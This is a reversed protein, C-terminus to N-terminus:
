SVHRPLANREFEGEGDGTSIVLQNPPGPNVYRIILLLSIILLALFPAIAIMIDRPSREFLKKKMMEEKEPNESNM